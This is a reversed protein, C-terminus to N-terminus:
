RLELGLLGIPLHRRGRHVVPFEEDVSRGCLSAWRLTVTGPVVQGDPLTYRYTVRVPESTLERDEGTRLDRLGLVKGTALHGRRLLNRRLWWRTSGLVLLIWGGYGVLGPILFLQPEALAMRTGRVRSVRPDDALYEVPLLEAQNLAGAHWGDRTVSSSRVTSGDPATFSYRIIHVRRGAWDDLGFSADGAPTGTALRADRDLARDSAPAGLFSVLYGLAGALVILAIGSLV